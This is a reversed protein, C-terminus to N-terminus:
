SAIPSDNGRPIRLDKWINLDDIYFSCSKMPQVAVIAHSISSLLVLPM